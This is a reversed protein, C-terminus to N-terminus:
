NAEAAAETERPYLDPRLEHRTVAGGTAAEIALARKAPCVGTKVWLHIAQATVSLLRALNAQGGVSDCARRMADSRM